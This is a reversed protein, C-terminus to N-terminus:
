LSGYPTTTRTVMTIASQNRLCTESLPEVYKKYLSCGMKSGQVAGDLLPIHDSTADDVSVRQTRGRLYSNFWDTVRSGLGQTNELRGILIDHDLTDFAASLDLMVVCIARRNDM